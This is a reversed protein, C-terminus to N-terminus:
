VSYSVLFICNVSNHVKTWEVHLWQGHRGFETRDLAQIADGADREDDMYIFAFGASILNSFCILRLVFFWKAVLAKTKYFGQHCCLRTPGTLRWLSNPFM